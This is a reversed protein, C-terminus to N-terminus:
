IVIKIKYCSGHRQITEIRDRVCCQNFPFAVGQFHTYQVRSLTPAFIVFSWHTIGFAIRTKINEREGYVGMIHIYVYVYIGLLFFRLSSSAVIWRWNIGVVRYVSRGNLGTFYIIRNIRLTVNFAALGTRYVRVVSLGSFYIFLYRASAGTTMRASLVHRLSNSKRSVLNRGRANRPWSVQIKRLSCGWRCRGGAVRECHENSILFGRAFPRGVPWSLACKKM